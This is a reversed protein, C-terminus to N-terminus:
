CFYFFDIFLLLSSVADDTFSANAYSWSSGGDTFKVSRDKHFREHYFYFCFISYLDSFYMLFIFVFSFVHIDRTYIVISLLLPGHSHIKLQIIYM